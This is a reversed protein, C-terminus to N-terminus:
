ANAAEAIDMGTHRKFTIAAVEGGVGYCEVLQGNRWTKGHLYLRGDRLRSIELQARITATWTTGHITETVTTPELDITRVPTFYPADM